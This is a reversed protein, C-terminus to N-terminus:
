HGPLIREFYDRQVAPLKLGTLDSRKKVFLIGSLEPDLQEALFKEIRESVEARTWKLQAEKFFACRVDNEVRTWSDKLDFDDVTLGTEEEVERILSRELAVTGDELVDDDNLTGSPFYSMGANSTHAAMTGLLFFGDSTKIAAIPFCLKASKSPHNLERWAMFAAYSTRLLNVELTDFNGSMDNSMLVPGNFIKPERETLFSWIRSIDSLHSSEFDWRVNKDLKALVRSHKQYITM